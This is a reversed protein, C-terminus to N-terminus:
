AQQYPRAQTHMPLGECKGYQPRRPPNGVLLSQSQSKSAQRVCKSGVLAGSDVTITASADPVIGVAENGVRHFPHVRGVAGGHADLGGKHHMWDIGKSTIRLLSFKQRLEGLAGEDPAEAERLGVVPLCFM